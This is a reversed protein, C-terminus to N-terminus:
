QNGILAIGGFESTGPSNASTSIGCPSTALIDPKNFRNIKSQKNIEV